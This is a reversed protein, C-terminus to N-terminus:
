LELNPNRFTALNRLTRSTSGRLSINNDVVFHIFDALWDDKDFVMAQATKQRKSVELVTDEIAERKRKGTPWRTGDTNFGYKSFLHHIAITTPTDLELHLTPPNQDYCHRCLWKGQGTRAHIIAEGNVEGTRKNKLCWTTKPRKKPPTPIHDKLPDGEVLFGSPYHGKQHPLPLNSQKHTATLDECETMSLKTVIASAM